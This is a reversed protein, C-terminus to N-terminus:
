SPSPPAALYLRKEKIYVEVSRPVLYRISDGRRVRQRLDHSAIDILPPSEVYEIRLPVDAAAFLLALALM